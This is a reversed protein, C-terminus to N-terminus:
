KHSYFMVSGILVMPILIPISFLVIKFALDLTM